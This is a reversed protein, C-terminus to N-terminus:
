KGRILTPAFALTLAWQLASGDRAKSSKKSKSGYQNKITKLMALLRRRVRPVESPPLTLLARLAIPATRPELKKGDAMAAHLEARAEDFLTATIAGISARTAGTIHEGRLHGIRRSALEFYKETTGRVQRTDVLKLVGARELANVHHYLRTPPEGLLAAAQMTTRRGQAFAELLRLRLPHALARLQQTARRRGAATAAPDPGRKRGRGGAGERPM